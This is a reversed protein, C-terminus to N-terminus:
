RRGISASNPWPKDGAIRRKFRERTYAHSRSADTLLSGIGLIQQGPHDTTKGCRAEGGCAAIAEDTVAEPRDPDAPRRDAQIAM